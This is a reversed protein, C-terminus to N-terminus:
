ESQKGSIHSVVNDLLTRAAAAPQDSSVLLILVGHPM